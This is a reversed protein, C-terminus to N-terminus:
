LGYPAALEFDLDLAQAIARQLQLCLRVAPATVEDGLGGPGDTRTRLQCMDACAYVRVQRVVRKLTYQPFAHTYRM